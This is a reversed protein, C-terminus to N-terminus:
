NGNGYSLWTAEYYGNYDITTCGAIQTGASDRMRTYVTSADYPDPKTKVGYNAALCTFPVNSIKSLYYLSTNRSPRELIWEASSTVGSWASIGSVSFSYTLNKTQDSIYFHATMFGSTDFTLWIDGYYQDGPSHTLPIIMSGGTDKNTGVIEYWVDYDSNSGTANSYTGMQILPANNGGLGIWTSAM